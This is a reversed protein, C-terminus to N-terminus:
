LQISLLPNLHLGAQTKLLQQQILHLQQGLRQQQKLQFKLQRQIKEKPVEETSLLSKEEESLSSEEQEQPQSERATPPFIRPRKPKKPYEEYNLPKEFLRKLARESLFGRRWDWSHFVYEPGVTTPDTVQVDRSKRNSGSGDDKCPNKITQQYAQNGGWTFYFSYKMTLSTHTLTDKYSFPGSEVLDRVVDGQFMVVPKWRQLWYTPIDGRGDIWKGNGFNTNYFVYGMTPHDENYMPPDTYRCICCILGNEKPDQGKGIEMEIFDIYGHFAAYLPINELMCYCGIKSIQTDAKTSYQYWVCNGIGKDLLPNYTCDFYATKFKTKTRTPGIFIPSFMGLHYEYQPITASTWPEVLGENSNTAQPHNQTLQTWYATAAHKINEIHSVPTYAFWDYNTDKNAKTNIDQFLQQSMNKPDKVGVLFWQTINSQWYTNKSYLIDIVTKHKQSSTGIAQYYFPQLVQFTTCINATQPSGFPHLFSAATVALSLLNVKCLDSQSYWKDTYLKPPPIRISVKQKGKPRTDYSPILIKNKAMMMKCPHYSPCSYKDLQYPESIDYQAIYDTDKTRYFTLKCGKYRALDLQDNPYTWRNLGRQNEDYLVKLNFSVTSLSGGFPWPQKICDDSHWAYNYSARGHGCWVVPMYGTITCKRRVAPHWQTLVLRKRRRRRRARIYTRRRWGRRYRRRGRRWRRVRRRPRRVSRRPRRPRLRRRRRWRRWRRKPRWFRRRWWYGWAM